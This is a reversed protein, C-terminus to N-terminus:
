KINNRTLNQEVKGYLYESFFTDILIKNICIYKLIM